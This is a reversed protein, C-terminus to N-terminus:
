ADGDLASVLQCTNDATWEQCPAAGAPQSNQIVIYINWMVSYISSIPM